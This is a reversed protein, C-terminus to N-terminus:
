MKLYNLVSDSQKKAKEINESNWDNIKALYEPLSRFKEYEGVLGPVTLQNDYIEKIKRQQAIKMEKKTSEIM